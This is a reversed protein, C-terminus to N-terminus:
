YIQLHIKIKGNIPNGTFGLKSDVDNNNNNHKDYYNDNENENFELKEKEDEGRKIKKNNSPTKIHKPIKPSKKEKVEKISSDIEDVKEVEEIKCKMYDDEFFDESGSNNGLFEEDSSTESEIKSLIRGINAEENDRLEPKLKRLAKKKRIKSKNM